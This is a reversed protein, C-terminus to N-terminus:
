VANNCSQNKLLFNAMQTLSHSDAIGLKKRISFRHSDITKLSRNLAAAIERPSKGEGLMQLVIVETQSLKDIASEETDNTKPSPSRSKKFQNRLLIDRMRDSVFLKGSAICRLASVLVPVAEDKMLYGHAGAQIVREAYVTEDHISLVLIRLQPVLRLLKGILVLGSADVLSLDVIALDPPAVSIKELAEKASHATCCVRIDPEHEILSVLGSVVIPHDDVIMIKMM